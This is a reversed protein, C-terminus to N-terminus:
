YKIREDDTPNSEEKFPIFLDYGNDDEPHKIDEVFTSGFKTRMYIFEYGNWLAVNANRCKGRYYRNKALDKKSIIGKSYIENFITYPIPKPLHIQYVSVEDFNKVDPYCPKKEIFMEEINELYVWMSDYKDTYLKEKFNPLEKKYKKYMSKEGYNLSHYMNAIRDAIKIFISLDSSNIRIYYDDDARENRNKGHINTTLNVVLCAVDVGLVKKVDSFTLGTDEIVDHNWAAAIVIALDKEDLLFGFKNVFEVVELLHIYYPLGDYLQNVRRHNSIAFDRAKIILDLDTM